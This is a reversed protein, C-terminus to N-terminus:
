STLAITQSVRHNKNKDATTFHPASDAFNGAVRNFKNGVDNLKDDMVILLHEMFTSKTEVDSLLDEMVLLKHAM